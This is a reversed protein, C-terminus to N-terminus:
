NCQKQICIIRNDDPQAPLEFIAVNANLSLSSIISILSNLTSQSIDEILYLGGNKIYPWVCILLCINSRFEHLGDDLFFDIGHVDANMVKLFKIISSPNLQNIYGTKIKDSTFFSKPDIDGACIKTQSNKLFSNWGRLSSGYKYGNSMASPVYDNPTGIGVEFFHLPEEKFPELLRFYIQSYNHWTAKDSGFYNFINCLESKDDSAIASCASNFIPNAQMQLDLTNFVSNPFQSGIKLEEFTNFELSNKSTLFNFKKETSM